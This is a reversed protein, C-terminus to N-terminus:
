PHGHHSSYFQEDIEIKPNAQALHNIAERISISFGNILPMDQENVPTGFDPSPKISKM